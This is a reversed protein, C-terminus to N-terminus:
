GQGWMSGGRERKGKRRTEVGGRNANTNKNGKVIRGANKLNIWLVNKVRPRHNKIGSL